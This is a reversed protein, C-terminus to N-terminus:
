AGTWAAIPDLAEPHSPTVRFAFFAPTAQVKLQNKVFMKTDVNLNGMIKVFRQKKYHKALREYKKVFFKCPRCWSFAVELVVLGPSEAAIIAEFDAVSNVETVLPRDAPQPTQTGPALTATPSPMTGM